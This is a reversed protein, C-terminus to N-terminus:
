ASMKVLLFRINLWFITPFMWHQCATPLATDKLAAEGQDGDRVRREALAMCDKMCGILRALDGRTGASKRLIPWNSVLGESADM